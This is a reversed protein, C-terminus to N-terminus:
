VQLSRRLMAGSWHTGIQYNKVLEVMKQNRPAGMGTQRALRVVEGCLDDIETNRGCRLGACMSTRANPDTKLMGAAIRTFLWNPLRLINPVMAPAVAAVKAPHIGAAKIVSLAETQLAALVLRYDRQLLQERIPIDALANVPNILNLLLKGWQVALMDDRLDLPVGAANMTSAMARTNASADVQLVGSNARHVHHENRWMVTYPVMGAHVQMEPAAARIREANGIGNQMSIVVSAPTCFQAIERAVEETGTGKVCVMVIPPAANRDLGELAERLSGCLHLQDPRLHTDFGEQDSVRLGGAALGSLTRPRGVMVVTSGTSALRGGIYCGIAGAGLIIFTM